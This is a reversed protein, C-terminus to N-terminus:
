RHGLFSATLDGARNVNGATVRRRRMWMLALAPLILVSSRLIWLGIKNAYIEFQNGEILDDYKHVQISPLVGFFLSLGDYAYKELRENGFPIYVAKLFDHYRAVEEATRFGVVVGELFDGYYRSKPIKTQNLQVMGFDAIAGNSLDAVDIYKDGSLPLGAELMDILATRNEGNRQYPARMLTHGYGELFSEPHLLDVIQFDIEANNLYYALGETKNSCSGYGDRITSEFKRDPHIAWVFGGKYPIQGVIEDVDLFSDATIAPFEKPGPIVTNSKQFSLPRLAALCMATLLLMFYAAILWSSTRIGGVKIHSEMQLGLGKIM